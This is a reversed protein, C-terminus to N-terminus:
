RTIKKGTISVLYSDILYKVLLIRVKLDKLSLKSRQDIVQENSKSYRKKSMLDYKDLILSILILTLVEDEHIGRSKSQQISATHSSSRKVRRKKTLSLSSGEINAIEMSLLDDQTVNRFDRTVGGEQAREDPKCFCLPPIVDPVTVWENIINDLMSNFFILVLENQYNIKPKGEDVAALEAVERSVEDLQSHSEEKLSDTRSRRETSQRKRSSTSSKKRQLTKSM